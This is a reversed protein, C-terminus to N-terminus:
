AKLAARFSALTCDLSPARPKSAMSVVGADAVRKKSRSTSAQPVRVLAIPKAIFQASVAPASIRSVPSWRFKSQSNHADQVDDVNPLEQISALIIVADATYARALKCGGIGSPRERPNGSSPLGRRMFSIRTRQKVLFLMLLTVPQMTFRPAGKM